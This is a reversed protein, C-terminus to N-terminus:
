PKGCDLTLRAGMHDVRALCIDNRNLSAFMEGANIAVSRNSISSLTSCITTSTANACVAAGAVTSSNTNSHQIMKVPNILFRCGGDDVDDDDSLLENRIENINSYIAMTTNDKNNNSGTQTHSYSSSSSTYKFMSSSSYDDGHRLLLPPRVPKECTYYFNTETSSKATADVSDAHTATGAGCGRGRRGRGNPKKFLHVLLLLFLILLSVVRLSTLFYVALKLHNENLSRMDFSLVGGDSTELTKTTPKSHNKVMSYESSLSLSSSCQSATCKRVLVKEDKCPEVRCVRRRYSKCESNCESWNTWQPACDARTYAECPTDEYSLADGEVTCMANSVNHKNKTQCTRTRRQIGTGCNNSCASWESWESWLYKRTKELLTLRAPKSVRKDVQNWAVCAYNAADSLRADLILLSLDNSLKFRSSDLLTNIQRNDKLWYVAPQPEGKPPDCRM